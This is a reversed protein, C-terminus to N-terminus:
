IAFLEKRLQSTVKFRVRKNVCNDSEDLIFGRYRRVCEVVRRANDANVEGKVLALEREVFPGADTLDTVKHVPVLRDLQAQVRPHDSRAFDRM